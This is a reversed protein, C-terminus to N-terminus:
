KALVQCALQLDSPKDVDIGVEPYPSIIGVANLKLLKTAREEIQRIMLKGMIFFLLYKWGLMAVLQLPKKRLSAAKNLKERQSKVVRPSLLVINGGTFVGERLKVYTRQVGPYKRENVEKSVFSYYVDGNRKSCSTLFDEVAEKTILPIDSTLILVPEETALATLGNNLSEILSNGPKVILSVQKKLEDSLISEPAVVTIRKIQPVKKIARVVYDIMPREGIKIEAEYRASSVKRLSGTNLAGALIVADM